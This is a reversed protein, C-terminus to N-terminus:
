EDDWNVTTIEEKPFDTKVKLYKRLLEKDEERIPEDLVVHAAVMMFLDRQCEVSLFEEYAYGRKSQYCLNETDSM